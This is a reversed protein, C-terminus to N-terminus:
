FISMWFGKNGRKFIIEWSIGNIFLLNSSKGFSSVERNYTIPVGSTNRVNILTKKKLLVQSYHRYKHERRNKKYKSTDGFKRIERKIQRGKKRRERKIAQNERRFCCLTLKERKQLRM